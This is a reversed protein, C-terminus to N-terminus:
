PYAEERYLQGFYQEFNSARFLTSPRLYPAMQPDPRWQRVKSAIVSRIDQPTVGSKLRAVILNLNTEVPRYGHGTKANLFDLLSRATERLPPAPPEPPTSPPEPVAAIQSTPIPSGSLLLEDKKHRGERHLGETPWHPRGPLGAPGVGLGTPGVEADPLGTPGVEERAAVLSALPVLAYVNARGEAKHSEYALAGVGLLESLARKVSRPSMHTREAITSHAPFATGAKNACRALYCYVAIAYPSLDLEFLADECTFYGRRNRLVPSTATM